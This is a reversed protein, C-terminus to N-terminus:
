RSACATWITAASHRAPPSFSMGHVLSAFEMEMYLSRAIWDPERGALRELRARSTLVRVEHGALRLGQAVEQCWKEYGGNGAPPYFNSLFLIRMAM